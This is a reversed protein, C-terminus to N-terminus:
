ARSCHAKPEARRGVDWTGDRGFGEGGIEDIERTFDRGSRSAEDSRYSPSRQPSLHSPRACGHHQGNGHMRRKESGSEEDGPAMVIM